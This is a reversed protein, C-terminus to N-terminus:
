KIYQSTNEHLMDLYNIKVEEQASEQMLSDDMDEDDEERVMDLDDDDEDDGSGDEDINDLLLNVAENENMQDSSDNTSSASVASDSDDMRSSTFDYLKSSIGTYNDCRSLTRDVIAVIALRKKNIKTILAENKTIIM